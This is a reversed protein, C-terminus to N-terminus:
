FDFVVRFLLALFVDKCPARRFIYYSREMYPNLDLKLLLVKQNNFVSFRTETRAFYVSHFNDFLCVDLDQVLTFRSM